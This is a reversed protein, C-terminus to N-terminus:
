LQNGYTLTVVRVYSNRAGSFVVVGLVTLIQSDRMAHLRLTTRNEREAVAEFAWACVISMSRSLIM